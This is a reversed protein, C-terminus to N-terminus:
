AAIVAGAKQELTRYASVFAFMTVPISILLGAGMFVIGVINIGIVSLILLLIELRSGQTIRMSEKIADIPKMNRDIVLFKVMSFMLAIFVGPVILLVLGVIVSVGTIITALLYNVYSQPHWLDKITVKMPDEYAKLAIAIGGMSILTQLLLHVLVAFSSYGGIMSILAGLLWSALLAALTIGAFDWPRKKFVEWGARLSTGASFTNMHVYQVGGTWCM